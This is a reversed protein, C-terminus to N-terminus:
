LRNMDNKEFIEDFLGGKACMGPPRRGGRRPGYGPVLPAMPWWHKSFFFDTQLTTGIDTLPRWHGGIPELSSRVTPAQGYRQDKRPGKIGKGKEQVISLGGM